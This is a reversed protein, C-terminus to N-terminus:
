NSMKFIQVHYDAYDSIYVKKKYVPFFGLLNNIFNDKHFIHELYNAFCFQLYLQHLIYLTM